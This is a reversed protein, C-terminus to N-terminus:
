ILILWHQASTPNQATVQVDGLFEASQSFYVLTLAHAQADAAAYAATGATLNTLAPAIVNTEYYSVESASPTRHLLNQYIDTVFQQDGAATQAYNHASTYETSNLFYTAFTLLPTAPNKALSNQYFSLGGIDPTRGFVAGYLETINGSTVTSTGPKAAVIDTHDSFQVAQVGSVEDTIGNGTITFSTGDGVPTIAYQSGTGSFVVTNAEGALGTIYSDIAPANLAVSFGGSIAKLAAADSTLQAATVSLAAGNTVSISAVKGSTVLSQLSDLGASVNAGTDSVDIEFKGSIAKLVAADSAMQAVSMTLVPTGSDTLTVAGLDGQAAVAALADLNASVNAASDSIATVSSIFSQQQVGAVTAASYTLTPLTMEFIAQNGDYTGTGVVQGSDNIGTAKELVWGSNAPLLTNLNTAVGNQWMAAVPSIFSTGSWGVVIGADNIAMPETQVYTSDLPALTQTKGNQWLFASIPGFGSAGTQEQGVIQDSNNLAVPNIVPNTAPASVTLQTTVGNKFLYAYGVWPNTATVTGSSNLTSIVSLLVDGKGNAAVITPDAISSSFGPPTVNANLPSMVGNQLVFDQPFTSSFSGVAGSTGYVKGSDDVAVPQALWGEFEGLTTLTGNQWTIGVNSGNTTATFNTTYNAVVEGSNNMAFPAIGSFNEITSTTGNQWFTLTSATTESTATMTISYTEYAIQGANNIAASFVGNDAGAITAILTVTTTM